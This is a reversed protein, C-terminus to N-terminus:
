MQSGLNGLENSVAYFGQCLGNQVGRVGNDLNNFNFADTITQQTAVASGRDGGFGGSPIVVTNTGDSGNRNQGWGAFAFFL